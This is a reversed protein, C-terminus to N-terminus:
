YLHEADEPNRYVATRKWENITFNPEIRLVDAAAAHAEASQGLQGYSAALWLHAIRLNPICSACERLPAAAEEYREIMYYANGMVAFRRFQFPDIRLNQESSRSPHAPQGAFVLGLGYGHDNFNRNLEIAREFEAIAAEHQRLFMLVWAFQSHGEPLHSNFQM